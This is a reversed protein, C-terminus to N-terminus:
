SPPQDLSSNNDEKRDDSDHKGGTDGEQGGERDAGDSVEEDGESRYAFGKSFGDLSDDTSSYGLEGLLEGVDRKDDAKIGDLGNSRRRGFQGGSSVKPAHILQPM